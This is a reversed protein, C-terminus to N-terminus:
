IIIYYNYIYVFIIMYYIYIYDYIYIYIYIYIYDFIILYLIYIIMYIYDYIYLWIYLWIYLSFKCNWWQWVCIEPVTLTFPMMLLSGFRPANPAKPAKRSGLMPHYVLLFCPPLPPLHHCVKFCLTYRIGVVVVKHFSHFREWSSCRTFQSRRDVTHRLLIIEIKPRQGCLKM